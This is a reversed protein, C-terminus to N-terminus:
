KERGSGISSNRSSALQNKGSLRGEPRSKAHLSLMFFVDAPNVEAHYVSLTIDDSVPTGLPDEPLIRLLFMIFLFIIFSAATIMPTTISTRAVPIKFHIVASCILGLLVAIVIGKWGVRLTLLLADRYLPLYSIMVDPDM